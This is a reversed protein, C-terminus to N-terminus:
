KVLDSKQVFEQNKHFPSFIFMEYRSKLSNEDLITEQTQTCNTLFYTHAKIFIIGRAIFNRSFSRQSCGYVDFNWIYTIIIAM